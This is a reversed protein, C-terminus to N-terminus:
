EKASIRVKICMANLEQFLLKSVYPFIIRTVKDSNCTRCHRQTTAINGCSQCIVVEYYDSQGCLRENLFKSTGHAIMCDREMEGFRLGGERSRGELPQRTLTEVHGRARAHMKDSVMHKLRQYYVPGIFVNGMYEGTMGNYMPETGTREYGHMGLRDCLQEAINESSATFPTADGTDGEILCSKGLVCEMLQNITMRSPICHPNIIIDPTMGSRTFPMDHQPYVMGCTGKQAARSAFKDGVEPIRVTRIVVKVLRYGNPTVSSFIRDVYGEEGKGIILSCDTLIDSDNNKATMVSTKAIIVDGIQVHTAEHTVPDRARVVGTEPDILSYNADMRRKDLPPAGIRHTVYTGQKKEEETHTKYTTAWFMGRQVASANLIVSDEQNFGGYCAIAVIANIGSPMANFGMLDAARTTVVPRQPYGLVHTCKDARLRHSMAFMSMAQKGMASQYCNRPSQSHDPFPIISAMVGLMMAPAIECYDARYTGLDSPNFAIVASNIERNDVYQIIGKEVMIDWALKPMGDQLHTSNTNRDITFLPRILRGEDCLVHLEEDMEDHSISVDFPLVRNCRLRKLEDMLSHPEVTMGTLSGNVFVKSYSTGESNQGNWDDICILARCKEVIEKVLVTPVHHSIRTLLSLNMVLGVAKGEPTESPCIYMIQSPNIQRIKFNRSDKSQPVAVRRLSSLTDGYSLRSLIQAVGTRIYSNKPVGWNGTTFCQRIGRTIVHLQSLIPVISPIQKKKEVESVIGDVYKKFLQRFLEHCLTGASEVRKNMYNDRDDNTRMGIHTAVLKQVIHGIFYAREKVTSVIGMHPFIECELVNRGYAVRECDKITHAAYSGIYKLACEQMDVIAWAEREENSLNDWAERLMHEDRHDSSHSDSVRQEECYTMFAGDERYLFSADRIAFQVYRAAQESELGIIQRLTIEDTYGMAAFVVGVPIPVRVYPLSFVMSRDNACMFCQVLVSHGTEESMSRVEAVRTYKKDQSKYDFVLPINYINRLQAFLVREKGKVIFYGGQDYECEGAEVREHPRMKSLYCKSSRVMIPVRGIVVRVHKKVKPITDGALLSTETLTAYIPSDYTLDRQRAECPYFPRLTRDEESVTPSPIYVDNFEIKYTYLPQGNKEERHILIDPEETMIRSLGEEIFRDFTETQHHVFGKANFYDGLVSWATEESVGKNKIAM